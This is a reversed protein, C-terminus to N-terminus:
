FKHLARPSLSVLLGRPPLVKQCKVNGKGDVLLAELAALNERIVGVRHGHNHRFTHAAIGTVRELDEFSGQSRRLSGGCGDEELGAKWRCTGDTGRDLFWRWAALPMGLYHECEKSAWEWTTPDQYEEYQVHDQTETLRHLFFALSLNSIEISTLVIPLPNDQLLSSNLAASCRPM